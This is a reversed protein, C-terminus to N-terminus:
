PQINVPPTALSPTIIHAHAGSGAAPQQCGHMHDGTGACVGGYHVWAM